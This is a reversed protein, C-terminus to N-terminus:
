PKDTRLWNQLGGSTKWFAKTQTEKTLQLKWNFQPIPKYEGSLLKIQGGRSVLINIPDPENLKEYLENLNDSVRYNNIAILEDNVNIGIAEGTGERHVFTVLTRGDNIKTDLGFNTNTTTQKEVSINGMRELLSQYDPTTPENLWLNFDDEFDYGAVESCIKLFEEETYGTGIPGFKKAGYFDKYLKVFVDDLSKQGSTHHCISADLLAAIIFGKTYYSYGTNKTNETPRYERIWADFSVEHLSAYKAGPRNEHYKIYRSLTNLFDQPKVWGLRLIALEDYYSTIGEAVWLSQSYNENDYDFPGLEVPRIRKVNWLHFYEHAVLNMFSRYTKDSSYNFRPMVLVTSNLHEIGGGGSEVHQVIFVYKDPNVDKPFEGVITSMTECVAQMDYTLRDAIANNEGVMAVYHPINMVKFELIEFNGLQIPSDVLVDYNYFEYEITRKNDSVSENMSSIHSSWEAPLKIRLNGKSDEFGKIYMFFSAGNILAQDSDIFSTRASFEFCYVDYTFTIEGSKLTRVEWINKRTKSVKLENSGSYAHVNEISKSFERVLYSGPTWVPLGFEYIGASDISITIKIQAYHNSPKPITVDYQINNSKSHLMNVSFLSVIAVLLYQKM